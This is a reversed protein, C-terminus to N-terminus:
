RIYVRPVRPSICLLVEYPITGLWGAIEDALLQAEGQRGLLVASDGVQVPGAGTVDVMCQDMCMRGIIPCRKGGVLVQGLNSLRRSFGDGYGAAITAVQLPRDARYTVGYGVAEGPAVTKIHTIEAEWQLIPRVVESYSGMPYGYLAIGIRVMQFRADLRMLASSAAAHTLCGEPLLPLMERFRQLQSDTFSTDPNGGDAFHTFCGTLRVDPAKELAALLDQLEEASKVGIRNMGTDLKIHVEATKGCAVAAQQAMDVQAKTFVTLTLQHSVAVRMGAENVPGLILIPLQVGAGRLIEGEEALAVGLWDAGAQEAARAIHTQGHGYADAKVVALLKCESGLMRKVAKVNEQCAALDVRAFTRRYM